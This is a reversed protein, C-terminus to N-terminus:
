PSNQGLDKQILKKQGHDTKNRAFYWLKIKYKVIKKMLQKIM